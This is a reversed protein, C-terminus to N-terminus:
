RVSLRLLRDGADHGHVDNVQKFEDVDIMMLAGEDGGPHTQPFLRDDFARRNSLGTVPDRLALERFMRTQRICGLSLDSSEAVVEALREGVLDSDGLERPTARTKAVSPLLARLAASATQPPGRLLGEVAPVVELSNHVFPYAAHRLGAPVARGGLM